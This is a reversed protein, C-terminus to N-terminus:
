KWGSSCGSCVGIVESISSTVSILYTDKFDIWESQKRFVWQCQVLTHLFLLQSSVGPGLVWLRSFISALQLGPHTSQPLCQSFRATNLTPTKVLVLIIHAVSPCKLRWARLTGNGFLLGRLYFTSAFVLYFQVVIVCFVAVVEESLVTPSRSPSVAMISEPYNARPLSSCPFLCNCDDWAHLSTRISIFLDFGVDWAAHLKLM